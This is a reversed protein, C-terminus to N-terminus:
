SKKKYYIFTALYIFFFIFFNIIIFVKLKEEIYDSMGKLINQHHAFIIFKKESSSYLENIYELIAPLKASSSEAYQIIYIYNIYINCQDKMYIYIYM